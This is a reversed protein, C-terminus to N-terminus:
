ETSEGSTQHNAPASHSRGQKKLALATQEAETLIGISALIEAERQHPFPMPQKRDFNWWGWPRSGPVKRGQEEILEDRLEEWAELLEEEALAEEESALFTWDHGTLLRIRVRDSFDRENVRRRRVRPM